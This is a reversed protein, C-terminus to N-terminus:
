LNKPPPPSKSYIMGREREEAKRPMGLPSMDEGTKKALDIIVKIVPYPNTLLNNEKLFSTFDKGTSAVWLRDALATAAKYQEEGGLETKLTKEAESRAKEVMAVQERAIGDVFKNWEAGIVKAQDKSLNAAHFTKKAWGSVVPDAKGGEPDPMEYEDSKEPKGLEHWFVEREEDTANEPLRPIMGKVKGDLETIKGEYGRIKGVTELHSKAFDGLTAHPQFAEHEKLDQPLQARWEGDAM